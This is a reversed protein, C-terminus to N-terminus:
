AIVRAGYSWQRGTARLPRFTKCASGPDKRGARVQNECECNVGGLQPTHGVVLRKGGVKALAQQVARCAHYREYPTAFREKSLTRNWM